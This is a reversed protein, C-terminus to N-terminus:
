NSAKTHAKKEAGWGSFVWCLRWKIHTHTRTHAHTLSSSELAICESLWKSRTKSCLSLIKNPDYRLAHQLLPLPKREGWREPGTCKSITLCHLSPLHVRRAQWDWFEPKYHPKPCLRHSCCHTRHQQGDEWETAHSWQVDRAIVLPCEISQQSTKASWGDGYTTVTCRQPWHQATWVRKYMQLMMIVCNTSQLAKNYMEATALTSGNMGQQLIQKQWHATKSMELLMTCNMNQQVATCIVTVGTCRVSQRVDRCDNTSIKPEPTLDVTVLTCEPSQKVDGDNGNHASWAANYMEVMTSTCKMSYHVM